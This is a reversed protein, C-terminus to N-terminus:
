SLGAAAGVYSVLDLLGAVILVACLITRGWGWPPTESGPEWGGVCQQSHRSIRGNWDM